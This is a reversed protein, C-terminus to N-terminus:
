IGGKNQVHIGWDEALVDECPVRELYSRSSTSLNHLMLKWGGSVKIMSYCLYKWKLRSVFQGQKMATLAWGFNKNFTNAAHVSNKKAKVM